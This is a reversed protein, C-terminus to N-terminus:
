GLLTKKRKVYDWIVFRDLDRGATFIVRGKTTEALRYSFRVDEESQNWTQLLFLTITIGEKACFKAERMTAEETRNDPPYLLFLMSGEFHATPLGDTIIIMHRNPTDQSALFKRGLSMAHQINTFHHPIQVESINPDSMDARLRVIPNYITVPKPMLTPIDAISRPKAFTYMEIFQLFDGPYEQRILGDLALGMRKVNTYQDDYRMSGSMDLLVTTACKPNNKTCHIEIDEPRLRIPLRNGQRLLANVMSSSIDMQAVSDGFEYPKTRQTEVAGEGIIGDLHRGSKSEQLESYITSLLKSQFLRYTKPTLRYGRRDSEIGQQNAQQQLYENIQQQIARLEDLSQDDVYDALAEMDIIGIKANKKAEELQRLLEDILELEQKVELAEPVSLEQNGTFPYKSSMQEIQYKESLREILEVLKTAFSSGDDGIRFYLRELDTIQEEKVAQRFVNALKAPPQIKQATQQYNKESTKQVKGTEYTELIKRKREELIEMMAQLSMGLGRIQSPDIQVANALEEETLSRTEGYMLLHEMAPTALDPPESTPSPFNKPDYQQYSHIIGGLNSKITM